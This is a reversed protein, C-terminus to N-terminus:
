VLGVPAPVVATTLGMRLEDIRSAARHATEQDDFLRYFTSGAGSIRMPGLSAGAIANAVRYVDPAVRFVAAELDNFCCPMIQEATRARVIREVSDTDSDGGDASAWVAFVESTSVACDVCALLVWGRWALSVREVREGRGTMVAAPLSFFLPVDSGIEAGLEALEGDTLGGNWLRNCLRLTAAANGSGGALGGAVPIFKELDVHLDPDVGLHEALRTAARCALNAPGTLEVDNCSVSVGPVDSRMCEIRDSLGAGIVLSRLDHFGDARLGLVQLTLNLKSPNTTAVSTDARTM